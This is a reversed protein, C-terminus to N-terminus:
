GGTLNLFYATIYNGGGNDALDVTQSSPTSGAAYFTTGVRVAVTSAISNTFAPSQAEFNPAPYPSAGLSGVAGLAITPGVASTAPATVPGPNNNSQGFVAGVRTFGSIPGDGRIVLLINGTAVSGTVGQVTTGPETGDAIKGSTVIGGNWGSSPANSILTFGTPQPTNVSAGAIYSVFLLLDGAQVGAPVTVPAAAGSSSGAVASAILRANSLKQRAPFPMLPFSM